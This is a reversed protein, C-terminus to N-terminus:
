CSTLRLGCAANRQGRRPYEITIWGGDDLEALWRRITREDVHLKRALGRHSWPMTRGEREKGSASWALFGYLCKAGSSIDPDVILELPLKGWQESM